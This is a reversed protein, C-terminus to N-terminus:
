FIGVIKRREKKFKSRTEANNLDNMKRYAKLLSEPFEGKYEIKYFSFGNYPIVSEYGLISVQKEVKSDKFNSLFTRQRDDNLAKFKSNVIQSDNCRACKEQITFILPDNILKDLFHVFLSDKVSM